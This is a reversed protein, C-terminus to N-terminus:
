LPPISLGIVLIDQDISAVVVSVVYIDSHGEFLSCGMAICRRTSGFM